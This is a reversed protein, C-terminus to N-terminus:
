EVLQLQDKLKDVEAGPVIYTHATADDSAYAGAVVERAATILETVRHADNATQLALSGALMERMHWATALLLAPEATARTQLEGLLERCRKAEGRQEVPTTEDAGVLEFARACFRAQASSLAYIWALAETVATGTTDM